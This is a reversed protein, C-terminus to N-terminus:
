NSTLDLSSKKESFIKDAWEFEEKFGLHYFYTDDSRKPLCFTSIGGHWISTFFNCFFNRPYDVIFFWLKPLAQVWCGNASRELFVDAIINARAVKVSPHKLSILEALEKCNLKVREM